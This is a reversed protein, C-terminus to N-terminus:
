NDIWLFGCAFFHIQSYLADRQTFRINYDNNTWNNFFPQLILHIKHIELIKDRGIFSSATKLAKETYRWGKHNGGSATEGVTNARLQFLDPTAL